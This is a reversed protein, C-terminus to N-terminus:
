FERPRYCGTIVGQKAPHDCFPAESPTRLAFQYGDDGLDYLLSVPEATECNGLHPGGHGELDVSGWAPVSGGHVVLQDFEFQVITGGGGFIELFGLDDGFCCNVFGHGPNEVGVLSIAEGDVTGEIRLDEPEDCSPFTLADKADTDEDSGDCGPGLLPASLVLWSLGRPIVTRM